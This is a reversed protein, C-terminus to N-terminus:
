WLSASRKTQDILAVVEFQLADDPLNISYYLLVDEAYLHLKDKIDTGFLLLCLVSGQPVGSIVPSARLPYVM